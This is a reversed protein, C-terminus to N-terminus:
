TKQSRKRGTFLGMLFQGLKKEKEWFFGFQGLLTGFFLLCVQYLPVILPIYILTKIWFPTSDEIGLFHFVPPRLQTVAMGALSFVIMILWFDLNSRINWKEKLRTMWAPENKMVGADRQVGDM